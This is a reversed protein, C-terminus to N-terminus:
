YFIGEMESPIKKFIVLYHYLNVPSPLPAAVQAHYLAVPSLYPRHRVSEQAQIHLLAQRKRLVQHLLTQM